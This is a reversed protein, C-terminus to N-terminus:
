CGPSEYAEWDDLVGSPALGIRFGDGGAYNMLDFLKKDHLKVVAIITNWSGGPDSKLEFDFKAGTFASTGVEYVWVGSKGDCWDIILAGNFVIQRTGTLFEAWAALAEDSDLREAGKLLSAPFEAVPQARTDSRFKDAQEQTLEAKPEATPEVTPTPVPTETPVPAPTVKIVVETATPAPPVPTDAAAPTDSDGGCAALAFAAFVSIILAALRRNTFISGMTM